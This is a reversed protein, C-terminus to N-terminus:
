KQKQQEQYKNIIRDRIQIQRNLDRRTAHNLRTMFDVLDTRCIIENTPFLMAVPEYTDKDLYEIITCAMKEGMIPKLKPYASVMNHACPNPFPTAKIWGAMNKVPRGNVNVVTLPTYECHEFLDLNAFASFKVVYTNKKKKTEHPVTKQTTKNSDSKNM